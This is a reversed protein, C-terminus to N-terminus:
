FPHFALWWIHPIILFLWMAEFWLCAASGGISLQSARAAVRWVLLIGLADICWDSLLGGRQPVWLQHIEDGAALLGALIVSWWDPKPRLCHRCILFLLGFETAHWGKVFLWWWQRWFLAFGEETMGGPWGSAVMKVWQRSSIVTSSSVFIFLAVLLLPWFRTFLKVLLEKM